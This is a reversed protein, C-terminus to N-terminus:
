VLHFFHFVIEAELLNPKFLLCYPRKTNLFPSITDLIRSSVLNTFQVNYGPSQVCISNLYSSFIYKDVGCTSTPLMTQLDNTLAFLILIIGELLLFLVFINQFCCFCYKSTFLQKQAVPIVILETIICLVFHYSQFNEDIQVCFFHQKFLYFACCGFSFTCIIFM